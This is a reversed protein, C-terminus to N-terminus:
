RLIRGGGIEPLAARNLREWEAAATEEADLYAGLMEREIRWRGRSGTRVAAIEGNHILELVQSGSLSLLDAADAITLWRGVGNSLEMGM